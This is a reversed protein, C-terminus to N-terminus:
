YHMKYTKQKSELTHWVLELTAPWRASFFLSFVNPPNHLVNATRQDELHVTLMESVAVSRKVPESREDQLTTGTGQGKEGGRCFCNPKVYGDM